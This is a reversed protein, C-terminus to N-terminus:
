KIFGHVKLHEREQRTLGHVEDGAVLIVTANELEVTCTRLAVIPKAAKKEVVPQPKPYPSSKEKDEM